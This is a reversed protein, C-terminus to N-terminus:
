VGNHANKNHSNSLRTLTDTTSGNCVLSTNPTSCRCLLWGSSFTLRDPLTFSVTIIIVFFIIAIKSCYRAHATNEVLESIEGNIIRMDM